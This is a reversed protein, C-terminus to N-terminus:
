VHVKDKVVWIAGSVTADKSIGLVEKVVVVGMGFDGECCRWNWMGSELVPM